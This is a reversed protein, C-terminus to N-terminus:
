SVPKGKSAVRPAASELSDWWRLVRTAYFTLWPSPEGVPVDLEFWVLGPHRAEQVWTGDPQRDSRVV